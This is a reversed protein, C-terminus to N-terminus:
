ARLICFLMSTAGTDAIVATSGGPTSKFTWTASTATLITDAYATGAIAWAQLVVREGKGVNKLGTTKFGANQAKFKDPVGVVKIKGTPQAILMGTFVTLLFM